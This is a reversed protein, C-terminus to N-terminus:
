IGYAAEPTATAPQGVSGPNIILRREGLRLPGNNFIAALTRV